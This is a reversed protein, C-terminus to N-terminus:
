EDDASDDPEIKFGDDGDAIDEIIECMPVSSSVTGNIKNRIGNLAAKDREDIRM